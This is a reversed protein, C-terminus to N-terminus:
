QQPAAQLGPLAPVHHLAPVIRALADKAHCSIGQKLHKRSGGKPRGFSRLEARGVIQVARGFQGLPDFFM